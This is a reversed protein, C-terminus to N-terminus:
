LELDEIPVYELDPYGYRSGGFAKRGVEDYMCERILPHCPKGLLVIELGPKLDASLIGHGTRPYLMFGYDPFMLRLKNEVKLLMLENKIVMTATKGRYGDTGEVKFNALYFGGRDEGYFETIVGRFVEKAQTFEKVVEVGDIGKENADTVLKGLELAKSVSGGICYRKAERGSIPYHCNGGFNGGKKILLRGVEDAYTPDNSDVIVFKNDSDDVLCMPYLSIGHGILSSMHTEPAARGVLDGNIMPIGLRAAASLIIPTNGAGLEFPILYDVKRGKIQQMMEIAKLMPFNEEWDQVQQKYDVSEATKVSGMNGASCIFADDEVDELDVMQLTRGHDFDNNMLNRGRLLAGGGGTGYIILGVLFAEIEDRTFIKKAM